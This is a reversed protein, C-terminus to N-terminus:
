SESRFVDREEAFQTRQLEEQVQQLTSAAEAARTAAARAERKAELAEQLKQRLAEHATGDDEQLRRADAQLQQVSSELAHLRSRVAHRIKLWAKGMVPEHLWDFGHLFEKFEIEGSGDVDLWDFMKILDQVPVHATAQLKKVHFESRCLERYENRELAGSGDKDASAFIGKLTTHLWRQREELSVEDTSAERVSAMHDSVVGTMVSLLAWSSGIIFIFFAPKTLPEKELLLEVHNWQQGNMVCFLTFMSDWISGFLNRMEPSIEDGDEGLEGHGIMRTALIACAYLSVATLVFVWFISSMAQLTGMALTHLPRVAKVLRLLRLIRLLRLMRILMFLQSFGGTKAAEGSVLELLALGWLDVIGLFVIVFDLTNWSWEEPSTFFRVIGENRIRVYIEFSFFVLLAQNLWWWAPSKVDTEFGIILANLVCVAAVILEFQQSDTWAFSGQHLMRLLKALRLLRAIRALGVYIWSGQLTRVKCVLPAVWQTTIGLAVILCDIANWIRDGPNTLFAKGFHAVRCFLEGVYCALIAQDLWWRSKNGGTHVAADAITAMNALIVSGVAVHFASSEVFDFPGRARVSVLETGAPAQYPQLPTDDGDDGLAFADGDQLGWADGSTSVTGSAAFRSLGVSSSATGTSPPRRRSEAENTLLPTYRFTTRGISNVRSSM